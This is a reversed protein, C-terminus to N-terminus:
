MVVIRRLFVVFILAKGNARLSRVEMKAMRDEAAMEYTERPDGGAVDESASRGERGRVLVLMPRM